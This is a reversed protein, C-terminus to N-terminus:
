KNIYELLIKYNKSILVVNKKRLYNKNINITWNEVIVFKDNM